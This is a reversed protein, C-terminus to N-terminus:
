ARAWGTRRTPCPRPTSRCPRGTSASGPAGPRSTPPSRQIRPSPRAAGAAPQYYREVYDRVMRQANFRPTVTAIAAASRRMWAVPVGHEDREYYTPVVERELLAYLADADAADAREEDDYERLEGIAWGNRGDFGEPWWGDLVSLNLVGNMAAKQGSTGSAELPRRPTNLWVDVGRTLARGVAMDYDELFLIRGAFRPDHSLQHITAILAQGAEDAPHAKGAFVLQVPREPDGLLAALRELDRFILTARKYTAFRRAFGITLAAADFLQGTDRMM